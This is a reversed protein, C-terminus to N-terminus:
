NIGLLPWISTPILHLYSIKIRYWSMVTIIVGYFIYFIKDKNDYAHADSEHRMGLALM